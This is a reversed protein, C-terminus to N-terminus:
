GGLQKGIFGVLGAALLALVLGILANIITQLAHKTSDPSGQSTVYLIGGYVVFGLAVLAALRILDDLIALAILLFPSKKGLVHDNDFNTVRCGGANDPALSLYEYWPVLGFFTPKDNCDRAPTVGNGSTSGDSGSGASSVCSGEIWSGKHAECAGKNTCNEPHADSCENGGLGSGAEPVCNGEVPTYGPQCTIAAARTPLLSLSLVLGFVIM